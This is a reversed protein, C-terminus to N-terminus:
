MVPAITAMSPPMVQQTGDVNSACAIALAQDIPVPPSFLYGQGWRCGLAMLEDLQEAREIGEAVARLGLEDALALVLRVIQSAGASRGLEHVFARDIKVFDVPLHHLMSLSSYGTGFDDIAFQLGLARAEAVARRSLDVDGVLAEETIELVLHTGPVGHRSLCQEIRSALDPALLQNPSLNVSVRLQHDLRRLQALDSVAQELVWDALDSGLGSSLAVSLFSEPTLRGLVPHNWRVLAEFGSLHGDSLQCIPQYHLCLEDRELAARLDRELQSREVVQRLMETDFLTVRRRGSNKAEYMAIDARRVLEEATIDEGTWTAVGISASVFHQRSRLAIPERIVELLRAACDAAEAAPLEDCIVLFEDGGLRGVVDGVRVAARLRAAIVRLVEDGLGHGESDNVLKFDDLDLFLVTSHLRRGFREDLVEFLRQRNPLGTLPDHRAAHSLVTELRKRESLDRFVFGLADINGGDDTIGVMVGSFPALRRDTPACLEVEGSWRDGRAVARYAEQLLVSRYEPPIVAQPDWRDIPEDLALGVFARGAPNLYLPRGELTVIGVMDSSAEAMAAFRSLWRERAVEHTRDVMMAVGAVVQGNDDGVPVISADLTREGYEPRTRARYVHPRGVERAHHAEEYAALDDPHVFPRFGSEMIEAVSANVLDAARQNVFARRGHEYLVIGVPVSDFLARLQAERLRHREARAQAERAENIADDIGDGLSGAIAVAALAALVRTTANWPGYESYALAVFGPVAIVQVPISRRLGVLVGYLVSGYSFWPILDARHDACALAAVSLLALTATGRVVLCTKTVTSPQLVHRALNVLLLVVFPTAAVWWGPRSAHGLHFSAVVAGLGALVPEATTVWRRLRVAREAQRRVGSDSSPEEAATVVRDAHGGVDVM